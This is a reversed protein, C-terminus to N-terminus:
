RIKRPDVFIVKKHNLDLIVYHLNAHSKITGTREHNM